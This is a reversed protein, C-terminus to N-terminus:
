RTGHAEIHGTLAGLFADPSELISAHGGDLDVV